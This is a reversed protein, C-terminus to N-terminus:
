AASAARGSRRVLATITHTMDAVHGEILGSCQGIWIMNDTTINSNTLEGVVRYERYGHM